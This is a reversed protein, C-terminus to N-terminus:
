FFRNTGVLDPCGNRGCPWMYMKHVSLSGHQNPTKESWLPWHHGRGGSGAARNGILSFYDTAGDMRHKTLSANPTGSRGQTPTGGNPTNQLCKIM